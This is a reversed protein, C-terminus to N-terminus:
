SRAFRRLRVDRWLALGFGAALLASVIGGSLENGTGDVASTM